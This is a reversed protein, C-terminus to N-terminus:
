RSRPPSLFAVFVLASLVFDRRNSALVRPLAAPLPARDDFRPDRHGQGPGYLLPRRSVSSGRDEGGTVWKAFALLSLAFFFTLTSDLLALRGSYCRTAASRSGLAAIYAIRKTYLTRALEFTVVVTGISFAVSVLRAATDSVGFVFYILAVFQQYLLFNSNGRSTLVFYRRLEDDGSLIGAQGAYVAEDGRFGASMLYWVRPLAALLVIGLLIWVGSDLSARFCSSAFREFPELRTGPGRREPIASRRSRTPLESRRSRGSGSSVTM